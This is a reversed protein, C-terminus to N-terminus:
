EMSVFVIQPAHSRLMRTLEIQMRTTTWQRVVSVEPESLRRQLYQALERDPSIIISRLM